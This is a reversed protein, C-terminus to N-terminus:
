DASEFKVRFLLLEFSSFFMFERGPEESSNGKENAVGFWGVYSERQLM